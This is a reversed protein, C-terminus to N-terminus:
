RGGCALTGHLIWRSLLRRRWLQFGLLRRKGSQFASVRGDFSGAGSDVGHEPYLDHRPPRLM